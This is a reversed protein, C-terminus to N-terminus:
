DDHTMRQRCPLPPDPLFRARLAPTIGSPCHFAPLLIQRRGKGAIEACARLLAGRGNYTLELRPTELLARSAHVVRPLFLDRIPAVPHSIPMLQPSVGPRADTIEQDRM